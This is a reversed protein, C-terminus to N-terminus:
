AIRREGRQRGLVTNCACCVDEIAIAEMSEPGATRRERSGGSLCMKQVALHDPGYPGNREAPVPGFLGISPTGVAVALHLPGTDSGVFLSARRTLAALERLSTPPALIAFGRSAAVIREAWAREERGAWVVLSKLAHRGGLHRAVGAFREPPWLKSPWGAGPNIVAFPEAVGSEAIMRRVSEIDAQEDHLDFRVAPQDIGLPRLLELNRDIVHTATPRILESNLQRSLERGDTGDFGIRRPAGSLRAAVASKTLGQMDIAVDFKSARLRGRLALVTRPSKLWKRPISILEDLARHGRLLQAAAGEVVWAIYAEPRAARLACLVPLGHLVDGIASLRVILIRQHSAPTPM